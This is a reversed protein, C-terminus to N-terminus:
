RLLPLSTATGTSPRRPRSTPPTWVVQSTEWSPILTFEAGATSEIFGIADGAAGAFADTARVNVQEAISIDIEATVAVAWANTTDNIADRIDAAIAAASGLDNNYNNAGTGVGRPGGAGTLVFGNITITAAINTPFTLVTISGSSHPSASVLARFVELFVFDTRKVNPATGDGLTAPSLQILNYGSATTETYDVTVPMNGVLATRRTMYFSDTFFGGGGPAAFQYDTLSPPVPGRLWGSPTEHHQILRRIEKGVEQSLNLEADLVPKGSQYIAESWSHEGPPLYRSVTSGPFYKDRIAM